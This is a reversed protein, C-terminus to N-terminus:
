LPTARSGAVNAVVTSCRHASSRSLIVEIEAGPHGPRRRSGVNRASLASLLAAVRTADVSMLLGGSTQADALVLRTADDVESPWRVFRGPRGPQPAIWRPGPGSPGPTLVRPLLPVRRRPDARRRQQGALMEALHGLLGFGTM